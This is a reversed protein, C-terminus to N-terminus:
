NPGTPVTVADGVADNFSISMVQSGFDAYFANNAVAITETAGSALRATVAANGDPVLGWAPYNDGARGGGVIGYNLSGATDECHFPTIEQDAGSVPVMVDLTVCMGSSGPQAWVSRNQGLVVGHVAAPVLGLDGLAQDQQTLSRQVVQSPAASAHAGRLLSYHARLRPSVRHHRTTHGKAGAGSTAIVVAGAVAAAVVLTGVARSSLKLSRNM